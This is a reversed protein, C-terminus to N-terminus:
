VTQARIRKMLFRQRYVTVVNEAVVADRRDSSARKRITDTMRNVLSKTRSQKREEKKDENHKRFIHRLALPLFKMEGKVQM